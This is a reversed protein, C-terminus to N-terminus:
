SVGVTPDCRFIRAGGARSVKIPRDSLSVSTASATPKLSSRPRILIAMRMGLYEGDDLVSSVACDHLAGISSGFAKYPKIVFSQVVRSVIRPNM